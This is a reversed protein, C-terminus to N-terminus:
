GDFDELFATMLRLMDGAARGGVETTEHHSPSTQELGAGLNTVVSIAAARPTETPSSQLEGAACEAKRVGESNICKM